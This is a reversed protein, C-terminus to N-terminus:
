FCMFPPDEIIYIAPIVQLISYNWVTHVHLGNALDLSVDKYDIPKEAKLEFLYATM